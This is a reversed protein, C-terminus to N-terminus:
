QSPGKYVVMEIRIEKIIKNFSNIEKIRKNFSSTSINNQRSQQNGDSFLYIQYVQKRVM